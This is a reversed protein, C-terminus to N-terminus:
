AITDTYDATSSVNFDAEATANFDTTATANFYATSSANFDATINFDATANLDGRDKKKFFSTISKTSGLTANLDEFKSASLSLNKM